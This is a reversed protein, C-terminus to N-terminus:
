CWTLAHRSLLFVHTMFALFPCRGTDPSLLASPSLPSWPSISNTKFRVSIFIGSLFSLLQELCLFWCSCPLVCLSKWSGCTNIIGYELIRAQSIGHVSFGQLSCDVPDCLTPCSQAVLCCCWETYCAGSEHQHIAFIVVINYLLKGGILIFLNILVVVVFTNM